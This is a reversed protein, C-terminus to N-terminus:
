ITLEGNLSFRSALTIKVKVIDGIKCKGSFNVVKWNPSYGTFINKNTKSKGEVLVELTKGVYKENNEKSYKQVLKNLKQLRKQKTQLSVKDPMKAAPTGERRSYIFTYANDFKVAKYLKLTNNFAKESENPFGVILDTSIASNEINDRIYKIKKLYDNILVKRNMRKLIEEDGSQVPLHIYPMINPYKKMVDVIKLDFNWPNSTVFRVRPIKTKAVDELLDWFKYTKNKFDIGYSNVNQGLLTVEKYGEKILKKVENLIDEKSRSHMQGRVYPVICYTCFNDCGQMINVFAKVKSNISSPISEYLSKPKSLVNIVRKKNKIVEFLLEPLDHINHVGFVFDINNNSSMIKQIVHEEQSMCGCIGFIFKPNTKKLKSLFGIEGFVKKEANERIACTNLIILDAKLIDTQPKFGLELLMGSINESDKINSQCGYTKVYFTLGKGIKVHKKEFKFNKKPLITEFSRKSSTKYEPTNLVIFQNKAM